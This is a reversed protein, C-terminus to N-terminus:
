KRKIKKTKKEGNQQNSIWYGLYILIGLSFGLIIFRTWDDMYRWYSGTGYIIFMLSGFMLGGSVSIVNIFIVSLVIIALGSILSLVFMKKSYNENYSEYKENCEQFMQNQIETKNESYIREYDCFDEYSSDQYILKSGFVLFMLLVVGIIIGVLVEKVNKM